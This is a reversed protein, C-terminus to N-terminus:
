DYRMIFQENDGVYSVHLASSCSMADQFLVGYTTESQM